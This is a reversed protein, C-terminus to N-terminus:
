SLRPGAIWCCFSSEAGQNPARFAQGGMHIRRRLPAKNRPCRNQLVTMPLYGTVQGYSCISDIRQTEWVNLTWCRAGLRLDWIWTEDPGWLAEKCTWLEVTQIWKRNQEIATDVCRIWRRRSPWVLSVRTWRRPTCDVRAAGACSVNYSGGGEVRGDIMRNGEEDTKSPHLLTYIVALFVKVRVKLLRSLKCVCTQSNKKLCWPRHTTWRSTVHKCSCAQAESADWRESLAIRLCVKHVREASAVLVCTCSTHWM